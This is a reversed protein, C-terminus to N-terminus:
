NCDITATLPQQCEASDHKPSNVLTSVPYVQMAAAPYPDLLAQLPDLKSGPELWLEYEDPALIVPMRDHIPSVIENATTTLITCTELIDGAPNEWREYLGAFAFPQREQLSIFYPQKNSKRDAAHQWEYFGDAPILCRRHRFASRFSPKQAATEARANITKYGITPDKAWSPILGWQLLQLQRDADPLRVVAAVTQSPAVNYHPPIDIPAVRFADAIATASISQSFRGCM